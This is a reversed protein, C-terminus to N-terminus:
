GSSVATASIACRRERFTIHISPRVSDNRAVIWARSWDISATIAAVASPRIVAMVVSMTASM